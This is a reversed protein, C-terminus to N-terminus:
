GLLRAKQQAFEAETLLGTERLEGLKTLQTYLDDVSPAAAPPAAAEARLADAVQTEVETQIRTKEQAAGAEQAAAVKGAVESATGAVVATRAM